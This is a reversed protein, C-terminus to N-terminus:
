PWRAAALILRSWIYIFVSLFRLFVVLQCLLEWIKPQRRGWPNIRLLKVHTFIRNVCRYIYVLDSKGCGNWDRLKELRSLLYYPDYQAVSGSGIQITETLTQGFRCRATQFWASPTGSEHWARNRASWVWIQSVTGPKPWPDPWSGLWHVLIMRGAEPWHKGASGSRISM